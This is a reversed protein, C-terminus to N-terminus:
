GVAFAKFRSPLRQIAEILERRVHDPADSPLNLGVTDAIGGFRREIAGPLEDYTGMAVFLNLTDDSILPAMNDWDRARAMATLRTGLDALGHHEFVRRYAPTSGYFAVRYRVPEAAQRVAERNAGTVVFGGGSVEFQAASRGVRDLEVQLIPGLVDQVYSRTAFSHLRVGDCTRGAVRLMHEGVAALTIPVPRTGMPGPSFEANMLSFQYFKGTHSMAEGTEWCRWIARLAQVYDAMRPAPSIWPVSFRRENHGKVQSGLGLAFRGGSNYQLDWSQNAVIMPSRPFAIAVSSTLQVRETTRAAAALALFPDHKIEPCQVADAGAAEAARAAQSTEHWDKTPLTISVRM